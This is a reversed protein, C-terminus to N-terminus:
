IHKAILLLRENKDNYDATAITLLKDGYDATVGTDYLSLSKCQAVFDRFSKPDYADVFEYYKFATKDDTTYPLVIFALVQYRHEVGEINLFVTKHANYFDFSKYQELPAFMTGNNMYRGNIIINDSPTFLNCDTQVYPCGYPSSNKYFDHSLYYDPIEFNQMIPYLIGTGTVSMWGVMDENLNYDILHMDKYPYPPMIPEIAEIPEEPTAKDTEDPTAEDTDIMDSVKYVLFFMGVIFAVVFIIFLAFFIKSKM